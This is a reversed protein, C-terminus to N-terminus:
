RGKAPVTITAQNSQCIAGGNNNLPQLVFYYTSGNSLGSRDSYDPLTSNGILTYPGGSATGILVNYSAAGAIGAWTLDIRAPALGSPTGGGGLNEVCAVFVTKRLMIISWGTEFADQYGDYFHGEWYGNQSATPNPSGTTGGAVGGTTGQRKVLAQAVGDCVDTGGSEPGVANYWDIPNTGAPVDELFTIPSLVGGPDHLLMAKTFSFMGYTYSRPQYYAGTSSTYGYNNCFNDHYYSEAANWRSDGRGIGDM